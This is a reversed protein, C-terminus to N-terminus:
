TRAQSLAEPWPRTGFHCLAGQLATKLTRSDATTPPTNALTLLLPTLQQSYLRSSTVPVLGPYGYLAIHLRNEAYYYPNEYTTPQLTEIPGPADVSLDLVIIHTNAQQLMTRTILYRKQLRFSKPWALANILLDAEKLHHNLYPYDARRLIKYAIGLRACATIAGTAVSGYGLILAKMDWPMKKSQRLAYYVGAEGTIHTQDVLRQQEATRINELALVSIGAAQALALRQPNQEAHFMCALLCGKPLLTFEHPAPAKLRLVIQAGQYTDALSHTIKAGAQSYQSNSIGIGLGANQELNLSHGAQCLQQVAEPLLLLRQEQPYTEKPLVFHM